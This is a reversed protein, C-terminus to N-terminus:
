ADCRVREKQMVEVEGQVVLLRGDTFEIQWFPEYISPAYVAFIYNGKYECGNVRVWEFIYEKEDEM